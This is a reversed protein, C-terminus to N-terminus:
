GYVVPQQEAQDKCIVEFKKLATTKGTKAPAEVVMIKKSIKDRFGPMIMKAFKLVAERQDIGVPETLKTYVYPDQRISRDILFLRGDPNSDDTRLYLVPRYWDRGKPDIFLGARAESVATVLSDGNGMSLYFTRAFKLAAESAISYQMAVVGPIGAQILAAAVSSFVIEGGVVGSKCANLVALRVGREKLLNGLTKGSIWQLQNSENAFALHGEPKGDLTCGCYKCAASTSRNL